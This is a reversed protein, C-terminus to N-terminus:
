QPGVQKRWALKDMYAWSTRHLASPGWVQLASRHAPSPYGKNHEFRFWPLEESLSRMLRDRTVKALISAAAISVSTRDGRVIMHSTGRGVFDWKGDVLFRDPLRHLREIARKAAIRQAASMGLRDCEAASAHGVAWDECWDALRDFIAEREPENLLKSDRVGYIRKGRPPVAVAITLPGAWAGRGM